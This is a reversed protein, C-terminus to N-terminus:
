EKDYVNVVYTNTKLKTICAFYGDGTIEKVLDSLDSGKVNTFSQVFEVM